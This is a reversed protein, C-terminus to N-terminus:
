KGDADEYSEDNENDPYENTASADLEEDDDDDEFAETSPMNSAEDSYLEAATPVEGIWSAWAPSAILESQGRDSSIFRFLDTVLTASIALILLVTSLHKCTSLQNARKAPKHVLILGQNAYMEGLM